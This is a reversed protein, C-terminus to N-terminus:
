CDHPGQDARSVAVTHRESIPAELIPAAAAALQDDQYLRSDHDEALGTDITKPAVAPIMGLRRKLAQNSEEIRQIHVCTQILLNLRDAAQSVSSDTLIDRMWRLEQDRDFEWGYTAALNMYRCVQQRSVLGYGAARAILRRVQRRLEDATLECTVSPFHECLHGAMDVIFQDRTLTSLADLQVNRIILM